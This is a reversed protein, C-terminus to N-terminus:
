DPNYYQSETINEDFYRQDNFRINTGIIKNTIEYWQKKKCILILNGKTIGKIFVDFWEGSQYHCWYEKWNVTLNGREINAILCCGTVHSKSSDIYAQFNISYTNQFLRYVKFQWINKSDWKKNIWEGYVPMLINARFEASILYQRITNLIRNDSEEPILNVKEFHITTITDVSQNIPSILIRKNLNYQLINFTYEFSISDKYAFSDLNFLMFLLFMNGITQLQNNQIAGSLRDILNNM